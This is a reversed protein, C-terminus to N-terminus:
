WVRNYAERDREVQARAAIDALKPRVGPRPTETLLLKLKTKGNLEEVKDFYYRADVWQERQLCYVGYALFKLQTTEYPNRTAWLSTPEAGSLYHHFLRMAESNFAHETAYDAYCDGTCRAGDLMFSLPDLSTIGPRGCNYRADRAFNSGIISMASIAIKIGRKRMRHVACLYREAFKHFM